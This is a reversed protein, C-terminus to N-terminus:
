IKNTVNLAAPSLMLRLILTLILTINTDYLTKTQNKNFKNKPQKM